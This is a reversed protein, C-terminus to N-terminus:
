LIDQMTNTCTNNCLASLKYYLYSRCNYINEAVSIIDNWAAENVLFLSFYIKACCKLFSQVKNKDMVHLLFHYWVPVAYVVLLPLHTCFEEGRGM